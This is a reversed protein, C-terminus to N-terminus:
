RGRAMVRLGDHALQIEEPLQRNTTEHKLLHGIHTFWTQTAGIRTAADVAELLSFHSPHKHHSLAGLM